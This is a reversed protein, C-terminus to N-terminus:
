PARTKRRAARARQPKGARQRLGKLVRLNRRYDDDDGPTELCAPVNRFRRDNVLLRFADRGIAGRGIHEHRDSRSGVDGKSDNLHLCEVLDLGVVDDLRGMVDEYAERTRVDYGSAFTHCMDLCVALRDRHKTADLIARLQEFRYGLTSGQGATNELCPVVDPADARELAWDLSRAITRLGYAEGKGLHAGPHFVLHRVGLVQAREMEVVFERRSLNRQPAKPSGLNVLYNVHILCAKIGNRKMESRFADAEEPPIPKTGRLM